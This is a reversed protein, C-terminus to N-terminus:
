RSPPFADAANALNVAFATAACLLLTPTTSM